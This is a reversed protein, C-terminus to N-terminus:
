GLSSRSVLVLSLSISVYISLSLSLSVLVLLSDRKFINIGADLYSVELKLTQAHRGLDDGVSARVSPFLDFLLSFSM